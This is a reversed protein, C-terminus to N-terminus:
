RHISLAKKPLLLKDDKVPLAPKPSSAPLAMMPKESNKVTNKPEWHALQWSELIYNLVKKEKSDMYTHPVFVLYAGSSYSFKIKNGEKEKNSPQGLLDIVSSLPLGKRLKDWNSKSKRRGGYSSTDITLNGLMPVEASSSYTAFGMKETKKKALFFNFKPEETYIIGEPGKTINFCKSKPKGYRKSLLSFRKDLDTAFWDAFCYPGGKVLSVVQLVNWGVNLTHGAVGKRAFWYNKLVSMSKYYDHASITTYNFLLSIAKEDTQFHVEPPKDPLNYETHCLEHAIMCALVTFRDEYYNQYVYKIYNNPMKVVRSAIEPVGKTKCAKDSVIRMSYSYKLPLNYILEKWLQGVEARYNSPPTYHHASFDLTACGNLFLIIIVWAVMLQKKNM